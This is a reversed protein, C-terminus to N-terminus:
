PSSLFVALSKIEQDTLKSTITNMGEHVREVSRDRFRQLNSMLYAPNQGRLRPIGGQGLAEPGHCHICLAGYIQRGKEKEDERYSSSGALLTQGSYYLALDLLDDDSLDKIMSYMAPHNRTKELFHRLQQLLYLPHQGALNPIVLGSTSSTKNGDEGHCLYCREAVVQTRLGAEQQAQELGGHKEIRQGLLDAAVEDSNPASQAKVELAGALFLATLLYGFHFSSITPSFRM